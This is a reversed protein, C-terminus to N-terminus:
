RCGSIVPIVGIPRHDPFAAYPIGREILGDVLIGDSCYSDTDPWQAFERKIVVNMSDVHCSRPPDAYFRLGLRTISFLGWDPRGACELADAMDELIREDAVTNDDDVCWQYIGTSKEWALRRCTNGGDRHPRECQFVWRQPHDIRAFILNDITEVDLQVIHEFDRFTQSDISDCTAVLSPRMLSPTIISFYPM